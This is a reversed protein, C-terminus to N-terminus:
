NSQSEFRQNIIIQYIFATCNLSFFISKKCYFSTLPTHNTKSIVCVFDNQVVWKIMPHANSFIREPLPVLTPLLLPCSFGGQGDASWIATILFLQCVSFSCMALTPTIVKTPYANKLNTMRRQKKELLM